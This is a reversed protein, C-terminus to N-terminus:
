FHSRTVDVSCNAMFKTRDRRGDGRTPSSLDTVEIKGAEFFSTPHSSYSTASERSKLRRLVINPVHLEISLGPPGKSKSLGPLLIVIGSKSFVIQKQM